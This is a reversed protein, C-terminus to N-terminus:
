PPPPGAPQSKIAPEQSAREGRATEVDCEITRIGNIAM